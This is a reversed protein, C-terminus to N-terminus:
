LRELVEKVSTPTILIEGPPVGATEILFCALCIRKPKKPAHARWVVKAGCLACSGAIDDDYNAKPACVLYDCAEADAQTGVKTKKLIDSENM